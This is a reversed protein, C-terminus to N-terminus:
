DASQYLFEDIYTGQLWIAIVGTACARVITPKSTMLLLRSQRLMVRVWVMLRFFPQLIALIESSTLILHLTTLGPTLQALTPKTAASLGDGSFGTAAQFNAFDFAMIDQASTSIIRNEFLTNNYTISIDVDGLALDFGFSTSESTENQLRPNGGSCATTFADFM